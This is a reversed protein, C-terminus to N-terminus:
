DVELREGKIFGRSVVQTIGRRGQNGPNWTNVSIRESTARLDSLMWIPIKKM